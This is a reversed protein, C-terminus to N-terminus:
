TVIASYRATFSSINQQKRDFGKPPFQRQWDGAPAIHECDIFQIYKRSCFARRRAAQPSKLVM